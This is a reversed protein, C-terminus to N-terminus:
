RNCLIEYLHNDTQAPHVPLGVGYSGPSQHARQSKNGWGM